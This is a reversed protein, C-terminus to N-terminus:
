NVCRLLTGNGGSIVCRMSSKTGPLLQIKNLNTVFVPCEMTRKEKKKNQGVLSYTSAAYICLDM